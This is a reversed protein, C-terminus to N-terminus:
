DTKKSWFNLWSREKANPNLFKSNPYNKVFVRQADDRLDLNGMKDHCRIMLFLAEEIAPADSYDTM